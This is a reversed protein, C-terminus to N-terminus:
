HTLPAVDMLAALKEFEEAVKRRFKVAQGIPAGARGSSSVFASLAMEQREPISILERAGDLTMSGFSVLRMIAQAEITEPTKFNDQM